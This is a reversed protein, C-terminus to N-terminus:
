PDVILILQNLIFVIAQKSHPHLCYMVHKKKPALLVKIYLSCNDFSLNELLMDLHILIMNYKAKAFLIVEFDMPPVFFNGYVVFCAILIVISTKCQIFKVFM